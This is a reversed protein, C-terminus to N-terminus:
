NRPSASEHWRRLLWWEILSVIAFVLVGLAALLVLAAFMKAVQLRNGAEIIRWALGATGGTGAVFEAIVTGVLALGASIKAGSLLYPLASPMELLWLRQWRTAGHLRFLEDLNRDVSKLGITTNALVPFLAVIVALILVALQARELGVWIVILPAIAVIPTVQLIVAYPWLAREIVPSQLFLVALAVGLALAIAFAAAALSMTVAASALLSAANEYLSLAIASPAPLVFPKVAFATVSWEWALLFFVFLTLPTGIAILREATM